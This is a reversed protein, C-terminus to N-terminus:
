SVRLAHLALQTGAGVVFGMGAATTMPIVPQNTSSNFQQVLIFLGAGIAGAILVTKL